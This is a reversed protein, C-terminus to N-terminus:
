GRAGRIILKINFHFSVVIWILYKYVIFIMVCLILAVNRSAHTRLVYICFSYYLRITIFASLKVSSALFAYSWSILLLFLESSKKSYYQTVNLLLNNDNSWATDLFKSSKCLGCMYLFKSFKIHFFQLILTKQRKQSWFLKQLCVRFIKKENRNIFVCM